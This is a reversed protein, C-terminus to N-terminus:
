YAMELWRLFTGFDDKFVTMSCHNILFYSFGHFELDANVVAAMIMLAHAQPSFIKADCQKEANPSVGLSRCQTMAAASAAAHRAAWAM